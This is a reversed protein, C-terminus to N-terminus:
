GFLRVFLIEPGFVGRLNTEPTSFHFTPFRRFRTKYPGQKLLLRANLTQRADPRTTLDGNVDPFLPQFNYQWDKNKTKQIQIDNM